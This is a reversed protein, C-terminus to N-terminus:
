DVRRVVDWKMERAFAKAATTWGFAEMVLTPPPGPEPDIELRGAVERAPHGPAIVTVERIERENGRTSCGVSEAIYSRGRTEWLRLETWRDKTADRNQTSFEHILKGDFHTDPGHACALRVKQYETM